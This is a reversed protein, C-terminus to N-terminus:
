FLFKLAFQIVRASGSSTIRGMQVGSSLSANPNSLNVSNFVNFFESRFQLRQGERGPIRFNKFVALNTTSESPGILANRGVNGYTGPAPASFVSRDFWALIKEARPRDYSLVPNGNVNPRQNPTSSLANDAGTTVNVPMGSRM